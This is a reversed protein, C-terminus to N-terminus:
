RSASAPSGSAGPLWTRGRRPLSFRLWGAEATVNGLEHGSGPGQVSAPRPSRRRRLTGAPSQREDGTGHSVTLRVALPDYVRAAYEVLPAGADRRNLLVRDAAHASSFRKRPFTVPTVIPWQSRRREVRDAAHAHMEPGRGSRIFICASCVTVPAIRLKRLSQRCPSPGCV